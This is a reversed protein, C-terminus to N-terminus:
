DGLRSVFRFLVIISLLSCGDFPIMCPCPPNKSGLSLQAELTLLFFFFFARSAFLNLETHASTHGCFQTRTHSSILHAVCQPFPLFDAILMEGLESGRKVM